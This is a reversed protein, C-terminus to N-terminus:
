EEPGFCRDYDVCVECSPARCVRINEMECLQKYLFKKWKMDKTNKQYLSPFNTKMVESLDMRSHLGLDQWLHDNGTCGVAIIKAIFQESEDVGACYALLLDVLYQIEEARDPQSVKGTASAPDLPINRFYRSAFDHFEEQSLGLYDPLAGIGFRFSSIVKAFFDANPCDSSASRLFEYLEQISKFGVGEM